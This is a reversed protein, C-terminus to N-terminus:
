WPTAGVSWSKLSSNNFCGSGSALCIANAISNNVSPESLVNALFVLTSVLLLIM